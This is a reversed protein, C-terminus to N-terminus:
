SLPVAEQGRHDLCGEVVHYSPGISFWRPDMGPGASLIMGAHSLRDQIVVNTAMTTFFEMRKIQGPDVGSVIRELSRRLTELLDDGMPTKTEAVIGQPGILVADTQTGGVDLGLIM